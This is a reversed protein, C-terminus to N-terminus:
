QSSIKKKLKAKILYHTKFKIPRTRTSRYKILEAHGNPSEQRQRLIRDRKWLKLFEALTAM